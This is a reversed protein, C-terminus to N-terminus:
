VPSAARHAAESVTLPERAVLEIATLPGIGSPKIQRQESSWPVSEALDLIRPGDVMIAVSFARSPRVATGTQLDTM